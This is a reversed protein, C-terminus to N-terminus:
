GLLDAVTIVSRAVEALRQNRDMAMRRLAAYAQEESSGKQKMLIGKAKEIVKREALDTKAQDLEQRLAQFECFRAVAVEIIPRIRKGSLGDVVYASVGARVAAEITASDGQEAFMVIPRPRDRSISRMDELIDRGPVELDVIIVDASTAHVRALLDEDAGLRAVVEYGADRLAREVMAAREPREDILMVRVAKM